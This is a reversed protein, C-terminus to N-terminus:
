QVHTGIQDIDHQAKKFLPELDELTLPAGKAERLKIYEAESVNYSALTSFGLNVVQLALRVEETNM